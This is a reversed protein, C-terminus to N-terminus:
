AKAAVADVAVPSARLYEREATSDRM